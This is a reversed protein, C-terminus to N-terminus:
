SPRKLSLAHRRIADIETKQQRKRDLNKIQFAMRRNGRFREAHRDLFDWYLTTFPCANDGTAAKPDYRCSACYNSMRHIYNGSACYPKTGVIGGDAHQSMGLANPLSVWDIADLYMAMHWEHFKRPHVGLLLAYLGLVMLRQIHHAYGHHLVGYMSERVCRMETQGNWFFGPLEAEHQLANMDQYEPMFTWYVGRVFERWGLIQRVFGEVSNLPVLGSRYAEVAADICDRPDLLKVNLVSSLRSHYLFPEGTWMADQYQGFLPLRNDIFDELLQRAHHRTVPLNVNELTGPHDPFRKRVLEIVASTIQDVPFAPSPSIEGPGAKGFAERNEKDLNWAGGEPKGKDMLIGTQKRMRRYFSELVLEKKGSAWSQFAEVSSFFHRDSRIELKDGVARKLMERVRWDGPEAVIVKVPKMHRLDKALLEGFDTGRDRSPATALKTYVVRIGNSELEERFHRMASFFFVIRLKHSWVYTAEEATEAMWVLDHDRDLGDFASSNTDLQDGLVIVLNRIRDKQEKM